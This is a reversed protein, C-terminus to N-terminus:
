HLNMFLDASLYKLLKVKNEKPMNRVLSHVLDYGQINKAIITILLALSLVGCSYSIFTGLLILILRM